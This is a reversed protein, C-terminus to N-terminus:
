MGLGPQANLEQSLRYTQPSFSAPVRALQAEAALIKTEADKRTVANKYWSHGIKILGGVVVGAGAAFLLGKVKAETPLERIQQWRDKQSLKGWVANLVKTEFKNGLAKDKIEYRKNIDELVEPRVTKRYFKKSSKEQNTKWTILADRAENYKTELLAFISNGNGEKIKNFADQVSKSDHNKLNHVLANHPPPDVEITKAWAKRAQSLAAWAGTGLGGLTAITNGFWNSKPREDAKISGGM